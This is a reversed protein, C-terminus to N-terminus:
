QTRQEPSRVEGKSYLPALPVTSPTHRWVNGENGHGPFGVWCDGGCSRHSGSPGYAHARAGAGARRGDTVHGGALAQSAPLTRPSSAAPARQRHRPPSGAPYTLRGRASPGLRRSARDTLGAGGPPSRERGRHSAPISLWLPPPPPRVSFGLVVRPWAMWSGPQASVAEPTHTLPPRLRHFPRAPGTGQMGAGRRAAPGRGADRGAAKPVFLVVGNGPRPGPQGPLCPCRKRKFNPQKRGEKRSDVCSATKLHM